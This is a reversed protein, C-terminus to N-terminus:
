AQETNNRIATYEYVDCRERQQWGYVAEAICNGGHPIFRITLLVQLFLAAFFDSLM